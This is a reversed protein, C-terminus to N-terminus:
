FVGEYYGKKFVLVGEVDEDESVSSVYISIGYKFSILGAEDVRISDDGMDRFIKEVESFRKGLLKYNQYVPNAPPFLEFAQCKGSNDYDVHMGINRYEDTLQEAFETKMFQSTPTGLMSWLQERTLGFEIEKGDVIIGKYSLLLIDM